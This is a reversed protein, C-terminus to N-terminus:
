EKSSPPATRAAMAARVLARDWTQGGMGGNYTTTERLDRYCANAIEDAQEDTVPVAGVAEAARSQCFYELARRIGALNQINSRGYINHAADFVETDTVPKTTMIKEGSFNVM